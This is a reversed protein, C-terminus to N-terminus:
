TLSVWWSPCPLYADDEHLAKFTNRTKNFSGMVRHQLPKAIAASWVFSIIATDSALSSIDDRSLLGLSNELGAEILRLYEVFNEQICRDDGARAALIRLKQVEAEGYFESERRLLIYKELHHKEKPWLSRIGDQRLFRDHLDQLVTPMLANTVAQLLSTREASHLGIELTDWVKLSDLIEGALWSCKIATSVLFNKEAQRLEGYMASPVTFHAWKCFHKYASEYEKMGLMPAPQSFGGLDESIARLLNMGLEAEALHSEQTEQTTTEAANALANERYNLTTQWLDRFGQLVTTDVDRVQSELLDRLSDASPKLKWSAILNKYEKWTFVPPEETLRAFYRINQFQEPSVREKFANFFEILSQVLRDKEEHNGVDRARSIVKKLITVWKEEPFHSEEAEGSPRARYGSVLLEDWFPPTDILAQFIEFSLTRPYELLLLLTWRVEEEAHREIINKLRWLARFFQKIKRPNRPLLDIIERIAYQDIRFPARATEAECLQVLESQEARALWFRFEIIKELFEATTGWGSHVQPLSRAIIVPDLGFVYACGKIDLDELIGLLLHPVLQPSARDLDDIIVVLKTGAPEKSLAKVIDAKVERLILPLALDPLSGILRELQPIKAVYPLGKASLSKFDWFSKKEAAPFAEKVALYFESWLHIFDRTKWPNFWAVKYNSRHALHRIYELITTKGEGWGGYIGVRISREIRDSKILEFINNALPKRNLEDM